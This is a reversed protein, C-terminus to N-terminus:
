LGPGLADLKVQVLNRWPSDGEMKELAQRYQARAEATKGQARLVDGRLDAYLAVFPASVKADLLKLADEYKKEDLRIGALRLRALAATNGDRARDIAWQLQAAAAQREGHEYNVKALILAAMPGYATRAYEELLQAGVKRIESLDNRRQAEELRSFLVSAAQAQSRNYYQWGHIGAVSVAFALAAAIILRGYERWFRKLADIQEQEELDYM